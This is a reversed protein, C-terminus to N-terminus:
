GSYLRSLWAVNEKRRALINQRVKYTASGQLGKLIVHEVFHSGQPRSTERFIVRQFDENTKTTLDKKFIRKTSKDRKAM